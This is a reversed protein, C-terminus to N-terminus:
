FTLHTVTFFFIHLHFVNEWRRESILMNGTAQFLLLYLMSLDFNHDKFTISSQLMTSPQYSSGQCGESPTQLLPQNNLRILFVGENSYVSSFDCLSKFVVQCKYNLKDKRFRETEREVKGWEGVGKM